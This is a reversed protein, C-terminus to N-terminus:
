TRAKCTKLRQQGNPSLRYLFAKGPKQVREAPRSVIYPVLTMFLGWVNLQAKTHYGLSPRPHLRALFSLLWRLM